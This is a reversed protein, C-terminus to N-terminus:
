DATLDARRVADCFAEILAPDKMGRDREVGSSVDVGYPRLTRIADAVNDPTLGGALFVPKAITELHPKLDTWQFPVGAGPSPGDILIAEVNENQDLEQLDDAITSPSFRIAKIIPACSAILETSEEGHLQTHTTPCQEEIDLFSDLPTNMFVGVSAVMPPLMAMLEAADAPDIYRVSSRVFMFGIADAGADVAALAAEEDRVGCIKIRTRPM